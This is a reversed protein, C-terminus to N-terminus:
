SHFIPLEKFGINPVNKRCLYTATNQTLIVLIELKTKQSFIEFIMVNAGSKCSPRAPPSPRRRPRTTTPTRGGGSPRDARRGVSRWVVRPRWAPISAIFTAAIKKASTDNSCFHDCNKWLGIRLIKTLLWDEKVSLYFVTLQIWNIWKKGMTCIKAWNQCMQRGNKSM